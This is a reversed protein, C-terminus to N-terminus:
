EGGDDDREAAAAKAAAAEDYGSDDGWDMDRCYRIYLTSNSLPGPTMARVADAMAVRKEPDKEYFPNPEGAGPNYVGMRISAAKADAQMEKLTRAPRPPAPPEIPGRAAAAAKAAEHAAFAARLDEAYVSGPIGGGPNYVGMRISAAKAEAQMEQWTKRRRAPAVAVPAAAEGSDVAVEAAAAAQIASPGSPADSSM